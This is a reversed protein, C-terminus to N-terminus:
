PFPQFHARIVLGPRRCCCGKVLSVPQDLILVKYSTTKCSSSYRWTGMGRLSSASPNSTESNSWLHTGSNSPDRGGRLLEGNRRDLFFFPFFFGFLRLKTLVVLYPICIKAGTIDQRVGSLELQARVFNKWHRCSRGVKRDAFSFFCILILGAPHIYM